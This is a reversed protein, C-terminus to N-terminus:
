FASVLTHTLPWGPCCLSIRDRFVKSVLKYFLCHLSSSGHNPISSVIRPGVHLVVAEIELELSCLVRKQCQLSWTCVHLM